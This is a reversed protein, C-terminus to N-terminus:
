QCSTELFWEKLAPFRSSEFNRTLAVHAGYAEKLAAAIEPSYAPQGVEKSQILTALGTDPPMSLEHYMKQELQSTSTFVSLAARSEGNHCDTCRQQRGLMPGNHQPVIMGDWDPTGYSRLKRNFEMLRRFGFDRPGDIRNVFANAIVEGKVPESELIPTHRAILQRVGNSHCSYCKGNNEQNVSIQYGSRLPTITYDRFYLRPKALRHGQADAKLVVLVSLPTKKKITSEGSKLNLLMWKDFRDQPDPIFIFTRYGGLASDHTLYKLGNDRAAEEVRGRDPLAAVIADPVKMMDKPKDSSEEAALYAANEIAFGYSVADHQKLWAPTFHRMNETCHAITEHRNIFGRCREFVGQVNSQVFQYFEADCTSDECTKVWNEDDAYHDLFGQWEEPTQYPCLEINSSVPSSVPTSVSEDSPNASSGVSIVVLFAATLLASFCNM